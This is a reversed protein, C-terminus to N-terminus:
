NLIIQQIDIIKINNFSKDNVGLEYSYFKDLTEYYGYSNIISNFGYQEIFNFYYINTNNFNSSKTMIENLLRKGKNDPWIKNNDTKSLIKNLNGNYIKNKYKKNINKINYINDLFDNINNSKKINNNSLIDISLNICKIDYLVIGIHKYLIDNKKYDIKYPDKLNEDNKLSYWSIKEKKNNYYSYLKTNKKLIYYENFVNSIDETTIKRLITLYIIDEIELKYNNIIWQTKEKKKYIGNVYCYIGNNKTIFLLCYKNNNYKEFDFYIINVYIYKKNNNYPAIDQYILPYYYKKYKLINNKLIIIDKDKKKFYKLDLFSIYSGYDMYINKELPHLIDPINNFITFIGLNQNDLYLKKFISIYKIDQIYKNYERSIFNNDTLKNVILLKYYFILMKEFIKINKHINNLTKKYYIDWKPM